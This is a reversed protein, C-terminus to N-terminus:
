VIIPKVAEWHDEPHLFCVAQLYITEKKENYQQPWIMVNNNSINEYRSVIIIIIIIIEM